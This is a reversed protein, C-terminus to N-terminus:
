GNEKEAKMRRLKEIEQKMAFSKEFLKMYEKINCKKPNQNTSTLTFTDITDDKTVTWETKSTNNTTLYSTYSNENLYWIAYLASDSLVKNTRRINFSKFNDNFEANPNEAKSNDWTKEYLKKFENFNM